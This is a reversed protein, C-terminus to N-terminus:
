LRQCFFIHFFFFFFSSQKSITILLTQCARSFFLIPFPKTKQIIFSIVPEPTHKIRRLVFFVSSTETSSNMIGHIKKCRPANRKVVLSYCSSHLSMLFELKKHIRIQGRFFLLTYQKSCFGLSLKEEKRRSISCWATM